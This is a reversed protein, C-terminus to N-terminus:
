FLVKEQLLVLKHLGYIDYTGITWNSKDSGPYREWGGTKSVKEMENLLLKQKRLSEATKKHREIEENLSKTRRRVEARMFFFSVFAM